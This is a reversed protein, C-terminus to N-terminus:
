IILHIYVDIKTSTIVYKDIINSGLQGIFMGFHFIEDKTRKPDIPVIISNDGFRELHWDSNNNVTDIFHDISKADIHKKLVFSLNEM